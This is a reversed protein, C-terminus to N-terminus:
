CKIIFKLVSTLTNLSSGEDKVYTIIKNKLGYTDLLDIFNNALTQRIIKIIKFLGLTIEKLKWYFWLFNIVLALVDYAGKSLDFSSIAYCCENVFAFCVNLFCIGGIQIFCHTFIIKLFPISCSSM